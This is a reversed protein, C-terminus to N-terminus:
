LTQIQLRYGERQSLILRYDPRYNLNSDFYQVIEAPAGVNMGMKQHVAPRLEIDRVHDLDHLRIKQPM